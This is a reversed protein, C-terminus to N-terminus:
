DIAFCYTRGESNSQALAKQSCGPSVAGDNWQATADGVRGHDVSSSSTWDRCTDTLATGDAKTGTLIATANTPLLYGREDLILSAALPHQPDHLAAVNAAIMVGAHNRWPGSGIRDKANVHAASLYARWTHDGAGVAEALAGCRADAGALGGFDGGNSASGASTVFFTMATHQIDTPYPEAGGVAKGQGSYIPVLTADQPPEPNDFFPDYPDENNDSSLNSSASPSGAGPALSCGAGVSLAGLCAIARWFLDGSHM